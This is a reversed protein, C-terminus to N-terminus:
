KIDRAELSVIAYDYERKYWNEKYEKGEKLIAYLIYYLRDSRQVKSKENVYNKTEVVDCVYNNVNDGRKFEVGLIIYREGDDTFEKDKLERNWNATTYRLVSKETPEAKVLSIPKAITQIHEANQKQRFVEIDEPNNLRNLSNANKQSIIARQNSNVQLLESRYFLQPYNTGEKTIFNGETNEVVYKPYGIRSQKPMRVERICYVDPTWHVVVLKKNDAKIKARIQTQRTALKVRVYDGVQLINDKYNNMDAKYKEMQLKTLSKLYKRDEQTDSEFRTMIQDPTAGHNENYQTNKARQTESLYPLWALSNTRVFIQRM